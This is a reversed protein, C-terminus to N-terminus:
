TSVGARGNMGAIQVMVAESAGGTEPSGAEVARERGDGHRCRGECCCGLHQWMCPPRGDSILGGRCAPGALVTVWSSSLTRSSTKQSRSCSTSRKAWSRFTGGGGVLAFTVDARGLGLLLDGFPEARLVGGGDLGPPGLALSEDVRTDWRRSWPCWGPEGGAERSRGTIPRSAGAVFILKRLNGPQPPGGWNGGGSDAREAVWVGPLGQRSSGPDEGRGHGEGRNRSARCERTGGCPRASCRRRLSRKM